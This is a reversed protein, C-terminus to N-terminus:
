HKMVHCGKELFNKLVCIEKALIRLFHLPQQKFCIEQWRVLFVIFMILSYLPLHRQLCTPMFLRMFFHFKLM